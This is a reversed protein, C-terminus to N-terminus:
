AAAALRPARREIERRVTHFEEFAVYPVGTEDLHAALGDRAFLLDAMLATCRDSIGDGLYVLPEGRQHPVLDHRKCHRACHECREGRDTWVLTCGERSFRADHSHVELGEIGAQGLVLDIVTRFGSSFVM